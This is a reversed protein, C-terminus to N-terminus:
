FLRRTYDLTGSFGINLWLMEHFFDGTRRRTYGYHIQTVISLQATEKETYMRVWTIISSSWAILSVCLLFCFLPRSCLSLFLFLSIGPVLYSLLFVLENSDFHRLLFPNGILICFNVFSSTFIVFLYTCIEVQFSCLNCVFGVNMSLFIFYVLCCYWRCSCRLFIKSFFYGSTIPLLQTFHNM